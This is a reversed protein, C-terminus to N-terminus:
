VSLANITFVKDYTSNVPSMLSEKKLLSNQGGPTKQFASKVSKNEDTYNSCSSLYFNCRIKSNVFDTKGAQNSTSDFYSGHFVFPINSQKM